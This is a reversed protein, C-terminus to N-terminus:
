ETGVIVPPTGLSEDEIQQSTLRVTIIKHGADDRCDVYYFVDRGMIFPPFQGSQRVRYAHANFRRCVTDGLKMAIATPMPNPSPYPSAVSDADMDSRSCGAVNQFSQDSSSGHIGVCGVPIILAIHPPMRALPKRQYKKM